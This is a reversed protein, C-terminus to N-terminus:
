APITEEHAQLELCRLEVAPKNGGLNGCKGRTHRNTGTVLIQLQRLAVDATSINPNAIM